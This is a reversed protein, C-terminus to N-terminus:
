PTHSASDPTAPTRSLDFLACAAAIRHADLRLKPGRWRDFQLQVKQYSMPLDVAPRENRKQFSAAVTAPDKWIWLLTPKYPALVDVWYHLTHVFRPDKIAWPQELEALVKAAWERPFPNETWAAIHALVHDNVERVPVVEAYAVDANNPRWGLAFLQRTTITTNSHDIGLVVLNTM